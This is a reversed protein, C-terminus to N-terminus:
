DPLYLPLFTVLIINAMTLLNAGLFPLPQAQPERALCVSVRYCCPGRLLANLYGASVLKAIAGEEVEKSVPSGPLESHLSLSVVHPKTTLSSVELLIGIKRLNEM